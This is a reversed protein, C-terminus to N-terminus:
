EFFDEDVELVQLTRRVQAGVRYKLMLQTLRKGEILVIRTPVADAYAVAQKSFSSTSIFVGKTAGHVHLAGVFAQVAERGVTNRDAYRKAQVYVRDLGLADGDIVGDIGGDHSKGTVAARGEAGGYGMAVLLKVVADEFFAPTSDQLRQLLESGVEANLITVADEALEEQNVTVMDAHGGHVQSPAEEATEVTSAETGWYPNFYGQAATFTTMGNPHDALWQRGKDTIAYTARSVREMLGAKTSHTIAWGARGRYREAGSEVTEARAEESLDLNVAALEVIERLKLTDEATALADLSPKIFEPWIPVLSM